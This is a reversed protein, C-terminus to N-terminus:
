NVGAPSPLESVPEGTPPGEEQKDISLRAGTFGALATRLDELSQRSSTTRDQFRFFEM